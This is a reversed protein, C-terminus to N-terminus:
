WIFFHICDRKSNIVAFVSFTIKNGISLLCVSISSSLLICLTILSFIRPSAGSMARLESWKLLFLANGGSDSPFGGFRAQNQTTLKVSIFGTQEKPSLYNLEGGESARRLRKLKSVKRYWAWFLVPFAARWNSRYLHREDGIGNVLTGLSNSLFLHYEFDRARKKCEVLGAWRRRSFGISESRMSVPGASAWVGSFYSVLEM